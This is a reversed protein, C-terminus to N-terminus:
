VPVYTIDHLYAHKQHLLVCKKCVGATQYYCWPVKTTKEGGVSLRKCVFALQAVAECDFIRMPCFIRRNWRPNVMNESRVM